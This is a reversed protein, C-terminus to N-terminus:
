LFDTFIIKRFFMTGQIYVVSLYKECRYPLHKKICNKFKQVFKMTVLQQLFCPSGGGLSNLVFEEVIVTFFLFLKMKGTVVQHLFHLLLVTQTNNLTFKLFLWIITSRGQLSHLVHGVTIGQSGSTDWHLWPPM